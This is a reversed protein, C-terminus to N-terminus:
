KVRRLRPRADAEIESAASDPAGAPELDVLARLTERGRFLRSRLTGVPGGLADAGEDDPLGEVPKLAIAARQDPPLRAMAAGIERVFPPARRDRRRRWRRRTRSRSRSGADAASRLSTSFGNFLLRQLWTRLSGRRSSLGCKRVAREPADQVLDDAAAGDRALTRAFRRLRPIEEAILWADDDNM